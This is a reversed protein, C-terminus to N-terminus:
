IENGMHCAARAKRMWTWQLRGWYCLGIALSRRGSWREKKDDVEIEERKRM